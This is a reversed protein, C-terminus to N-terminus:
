LQLGWGVLDMRQRQITDLPGAVNESVKVNNLFTDNSKDRIEKLIELEENRKNSTYNNTVTSNYIQSSPMSNRNNLGLAVEPSNPTIQIERNIADMAQYVKDSDAEIGVAIGQPIFKGIKDRMVRSPSHIDLASKIKSTVQNAVSEAASLASGSSSNIGNALGQMAQEGITRMASPLSSFAEPIKKATQQSLENVKDMGSKIANFLEDIATKVTSNGESLGLVLGDILYSGHEKFVTSPSHIGAKSKFENSVDDAMKGSANAADQGGESIGKSVGDSVNKGITGFDAASIQQSLSQQTNAVLSTIKEDIGQNGTDFATKFADTATTGGNTFVENMKQLQEDSSGVLAAVYGASEPGADRLKNLLGENIGRDALTAINNSWEGIVRQNEQMNATMQEVSLTQKDSLTDFMNTASDSYEQWKDRMGDVATKQADSLTEYSVIQNFVGDQTADSVAQMSTTLVDETMVYEIKLDNLTNKLTQEQEDLGKVAEKYESNKVKGEELKKNWEDRLKTSEGLKSEIESQEKLINTLDSQAQNATEQEKYANIREKILETNMSLKNSENDYSLNLGDVSNNLEEILSKMKNKDKISKNEKNSLTELEAALSQYAKSSNEIQDFNDKRNDTNRELSENLKDTSNALKEQESNLKKSAETEKNFWNWLGAAAGVLAGIGLTIWGIPGMLIKIATGFATTAIAALNMAVTSLSVAGTQLAIATTYAGTLATQVALLASQAKGAATAVIGARVQANTAVTHLNLAATLAAYAIKSNMVMGTVAQIISAAAFASVMGLIVPTLPRMVTILVSIADGFVKVVPTSARIVDTMVKFTNNVAVKMGDLNQAISKGTVAVSLDNFAEIVNALGKSAANQLNSFSTAIGESNKRALDALEGTGTGLEILQNQFDNFTIKGSNLAAYLDNQATTGVFGMAEATKQLGIPMTEQLTRWSTLDVKGTSLMQIYQEMGRSADSTSAGSALMANNLALTADTSKNLNGTVSTMRQTISVVEDLKTPLGDIGDSLRNVSKSSEEASFGLAGMVKPYKQMTDFRSIAADLSKNLVSMAASAVKVLGLSIAMNKISGSAKKGSGDVNNLDTTLKKVEDGDINVAISVSGDSM